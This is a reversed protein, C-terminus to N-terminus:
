RDNGCNSSGEIIDGYSSLPEHFCPVLKVNDYGLGEEILIKTLEATAHHSARHSYSITLPIGKGQFNFEKRHIPDSLFFYSLQMYAGLLVM